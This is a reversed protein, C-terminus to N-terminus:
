QKRPLKVCFYYTGIEQFKNNKHKPFQGSFTFLQLLSLFLKYLDKFTYVKLPMSHVENQLM